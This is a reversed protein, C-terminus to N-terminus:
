ERSSGPKPRLSPPLNAPLAGLLSATDLMALISPSREVGERIFQATETPDLAALLLPWAHLAAGAWAPGGCALVADALTSDPAIADALSAGSAAASEIHVRARQTAADAAAAYRRTAALLIVAALEADRLRSGSGGGRAILARAEADWLQVPVTVAGPPEPLGSLPLRGSAPRGAGSPTAADLLGCALLLSRARTMSVARAPRAAPPSNPGGLRIASGDARRQRPSTLSQYLRKCVARLAAHAMAHLTGAGSDLLMAARPLLASVPAASHGALPPTASRPAPARPRAQTPPARDVSPAVVISRTALTADSAVESASGRLQDADPLGPCVPTALPHPMLPPLSLLLPSM